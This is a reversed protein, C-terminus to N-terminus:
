NLIWCSTGAANTENLVRSPAAIANCIWCPTFGVSHTVSLAGSGCSTWQGKKEVDNRLLHIQLSVTTMAHTPRVTINRMGTTNTWPRVWRSWNSVQNGKRFPTSLNYTVYNISTFGLSNLSYYYNKLPCITINLRM